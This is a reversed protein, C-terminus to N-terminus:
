VNMKFINRSISAHEKNSQITKDLAEFYKISNVVKDNGYKKLFKNIKDKCYHSPQEKLFGDEKAQYCANNILSCLDDFAQNTIENKM